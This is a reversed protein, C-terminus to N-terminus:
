RDSTRVPIVVDRSANGSLVYIAEAGQPGEPWMAELSLDRRQNLQQLLAAREEPEFLGARVVLYTVHRRRLFAMSHDDPFSAMQERMEYFSRPAHGSYGNLMSQFHGIGQYMYIPDLSLWFGKRSLLPLEVVVAPPRASLLADVRSPKPAPELVPSSAYEAILLATVAGGALRRRSTHGIISLLFATGYASLVALSLNVLIDMRAPSRLGQFARVHEFLWLYVASNSGRTLEIAAVLGALYAFRVRGKGGVIGVLALVVAV